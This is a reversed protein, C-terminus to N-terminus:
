VIIQSVPFVDDAGFDARQPAISKRPRKRPTQCSEQDTFQTCLMRQAIKLDRSSNRENSNQVDLKQQQLFDSFSLERQQKSFSRGVEKLANAHLTKEPPNFLLARQVRHSNTSDKPCQAASKNESIGSLREVAYSKTVSCPPSKSQFTQMQLESGYDMPIHGSRTIRSSSVIRTSQPSASGIQQLPSMLCKKRQLSPSFSAYSIAKRPTGTPTSFPDNINGQVVNNSVGNNGSPNILMMSKIHKKLSNEHTCDQYKVLNDNGVVRPSKLTLCAFTTLTNRPTSCENPSKPTLDNGSSIHNDASDTYKTSSDLDARGSTTMCSRESSGGTLPRPSAKSNEMVVRDLHLLPVSTSKM